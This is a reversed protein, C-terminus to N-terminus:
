LAHPLSPPCCLLCLCAAAAAVSERVVCGAQEGAVTYAGSNPFLLWDGNRLEPLEHDKYVCDASDCTPGWLTSTFTPAHTVEPLLPSRVIRYEPNQGDYLICNFSGYLGDTIWYDKHVGGNAAARDRQGVVPTMLTSSTEVFYRGPESIVRVNMEPPFNAALANNITNAIEGFMVNGMSDFHGTFGGGIDLLEMEFGMDAAQDFVQLLPPLPRLDSM